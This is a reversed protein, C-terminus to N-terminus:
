ANRPKLRRAFVVYVARRLRANLRARRDGIQVDRASLLEPHDRRLHSHFEAAQRSQEAVLQVSWQAANVRFAALSGDVAILDGRLLVRAYSAQDILYAYDGDWGGADVFASRLMTVCGPEGLLNTGALVSARIAAKGDVRGSLGELGRGKLLRDGRADLIDRSSAALVAGPNDELAQVQRELATPYLLDDGCVLKLYKGVAAESVRNWNRSAGGGAPTSIVRVRPDDTFREAVARTDDTSSHDAIVLEFDTYTQALISRITEALYDANNYAPIVVSMQPSM